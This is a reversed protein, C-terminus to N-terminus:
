TLAYVMIWCKKGTEAQHTTDFMKTLVIHPCWWLWWSLESKGLDVWHCLNNQYGSHEKLPALSCSETTTIFIDSVLLLLLSYDQKSKHNASCIIKDQNSRAKHLLPWLAHVLKLIVGKQIKQWEAKFHSPHVNKFLSFSLPFHHTRHETRGVFKKIM